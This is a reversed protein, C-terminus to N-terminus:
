NDKATEIALRPKPTGTVLACCPGIHRNIAGHNHENNYVQRTSESGDWQEIFSRWGTANVSFMEGCNDCMMVASM